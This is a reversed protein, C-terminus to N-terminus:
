SSVVRYRTRIRDTPDSSPVAEVLGRERLRGVAVKVSGLPGGVERGIESLSLLGGGIMADLILQQRGGLRTRGISQRALASRNAAGVELKRLDTM